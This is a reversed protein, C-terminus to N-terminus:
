GDDCPGFANIVGLMDDINVVGNGVTGNANTPEVDSAADPGGFTNIVRLLDDVNVVGNGFTGDGNDPVCDAACPRDILTHASADFAQGTRMVHLRCDELAVSQRPGVSFTPSSLYTSQARSTMGWTDLLVVATESGITPGDSVLRTATSTTVQVFDDLYVALQHPDESIAWQPGGSRNEDFATSNWVKTSVITRLLRDAGPEVTLAGDFLAFDNGDDDVWADGFSRDSLVTGELTIGPSFSPAVAPASVLDANAPRDLVARTALDIRYGETYQDHRLAGVTPPQGPVLRAWTMEDAWLLTVAGEGRVEATGDPSICLATRDDVGVALVGPDIDQMARAAMVALRGFRGRETFHTDFLVGNTLELFDTTFTLFPHFPNQLAQRPTLSGVNADYIISGLVACGASTGGVVGGADYVDRIAQEALTGNWLNVYNSQDGGRIWVIDANAIVQAVSANDANLATVNVNTVSAVGATTFANTAAADSGSLGLIVVDGFNGRAAMWAFVSPAWSGNAPNGGGEACIYGQAILRSNIAACLTASLCFLLMLRQRDRRM